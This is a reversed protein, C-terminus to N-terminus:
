KTKGIFSGVFFLLMGVIAYWELFPILFMSIVGLGSIIFGIPSVYHSSWNGDYIEITKTLLKKM